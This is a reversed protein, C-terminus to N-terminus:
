VVERYLRYPWKLPVTNRSFRLLIITFRKVNVFKLFKIVLVLKIIFKRNKSQNM